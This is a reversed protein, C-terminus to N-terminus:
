VSVLMVTYWAKLASIAIATTSFCLSSAEGLYLVDRIVHILGDQAHINFRLPYEHLSGPCSRM